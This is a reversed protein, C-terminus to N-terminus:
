PFRLGLIFNCHFPPSLTDRQYFAQAIARGTKRVRTDDLAVGVLRQPCYALARKLIPQFLQQPEWQCRAHLQYEGSWNQDQRGQSWIVRTLTRRGLCTLTGLAQRVARIWTGERPFVSRWEAVISLFASLLTM